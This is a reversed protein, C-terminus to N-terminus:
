ADEQEPADTVVTRGRRLGAPTPTWFTMTRLRPSYAHLSASPRDGAGLVDHVVGPAMWRTDGVSLRSRDLRAASDPRVEEVEGLVVSFAAAADGHDHLETRQGPLWTLLWVDVGAPSPLRAWSRSTSDFRLHPRWVSPDAALRRVLGVLDALPLGPRPAEPASSHTSPLPRTSRALSTTPM